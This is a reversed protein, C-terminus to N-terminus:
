AALGRVEADGIEERVVVPFRQGVPMTQDLGPLRDAM